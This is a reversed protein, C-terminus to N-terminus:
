MKDVMPVYPMYSYQHPEAISVVCPEWTCAGGNGAGSLHDSM